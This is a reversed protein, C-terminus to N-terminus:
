INSITRITQQNESTEGATIKAPFQADNMLKTLNENLIEAEDATFAPTGPAVAASGIIGLHLMAQKIGGILKSGYGNAGPFGTLRVFDEFFKKFFEIKEADRAVVAEWAQKWERPFVNATGSVVGAIAVEANEIGNERQIEDIDFILNANGAYLTFPADMGKAFSKAYNGFAQRNASAKLGVVSPMQGLAAILVNPVNLNANHAAAIDPNDYLGVILSSAALRPSIEREFFQIVESSPLDDIAYPAFVGVEAKLDIALELLEISEAKTPATIGVWTEVPAIGEALTQNVKKIEDVGVELLRRIQPQSLRNYEGTTGAVFLSDAGHGQQIGHRVINRQDAEILNGAEDLATVIPINLGKRPSM